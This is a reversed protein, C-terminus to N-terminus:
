ENESRLKEKLEFNERETDACSSTFMLVAVAYGLIFFVIAIFIYIM